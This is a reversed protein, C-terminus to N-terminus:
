KGNQMVSHKKYLKELFRLKLNMKRMSQEHISYLTAHVIGNSVKRKAVSNVDIRISDSSDYCLAVNDKIRSLLVIKNKIIEASSM